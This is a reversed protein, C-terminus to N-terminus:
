DSSGAVLVDGSADLAVGSAADNGSGGFVRAWALEGDSGYKAVFFDIAGASTFPVSGFTATGQFTGVVVSAGTADSVVAGGTDAQPGGVRSSWQGVALPTPPKAPPAGADSATGPPASSGTGTPPPAAMSTSGGPMSMDMSGDGCATLAACTAASMVAMRTSHPM